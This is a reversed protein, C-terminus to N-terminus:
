KGMNDTSMPIPPPVPPVSTNNLPAPVTDLTTNHLDNGLPMANLAKIPEPASINESSLVENVMNRAMDLHSEKSTPSVPNVSTQNPINVQANDVPPKWNDPPATFNQNPQIITKQNSIFGKEENSSAELNTLPDTSPDYGEPKSNATLISDNIPAQTMFKSDPGVYLDPDRYGNDTKQPVMDQSIAASNNIESKLKNISDEFVPAPLKEPQPLNSPPIQSSINPAPKFNPSPELVKNLKEEVTAQVIAQEQHPINITSGSANPNPAVVNTEKLSSTVLQQDAGAAMLEGAVSMTRPSTKNNSFRNTEAVIGTLLATAVQDNVLNDGAAKALDYVLESLSSAQPDIWNISGMTGQSVTNITSVTADHLIRGHAVIAEDLDKQEKVGLGIVLEVNFDGQSFNLDNESLSTRYPTIFIKVVKDEVKYRLKDAKSRDLSIIFDRLSDTNTEITEKPKLFEITSPVVGSFVASGHKNMKNIVLTLGILAALQDVSPNKSVTVLVTNATKLRELLASKPNDM